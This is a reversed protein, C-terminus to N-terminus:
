KLVVWDEAVLDSSSATWPVVTDDATKMYFYPLRVYTEDGRLTAIRNAPYCLAIWMGKGNWGTRALRRGRKLWTLAESFDM